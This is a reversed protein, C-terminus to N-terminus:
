KYFSALQKKYVDPLNIQAQLNKFYNKDDVVTLPDLAIPELEEVPFAKAVVMPMTPEGDVPIHPRIDGGEEEDHDLVLFWEPVASTLNSEPILVTENPEGINVLSKLSSALKRIQKLGKKLKKEAAALTIGSVVPDAEAQHLNFMKIKNGIKRKETEKLFFNKMMSSSGYRPHGNVVVLSISKESSHLLLDYPDDAVGEIVILDALKDQTLTGIENDWKIIKAANKTAMEVIEYSSFLNDNENSYIRAVKLEGLLNKSGSPSWDSGIGIMIKNSKAASVDATQGYLLLNSLPSWVISAKKEKMIKYDANTLAVSHIGALADTIAWDDNPLKLSEFHKHANEDSGESLHLLMCSSKKLQALFHEADKSAIDPIHADVKPLLPNKAEEVNRVIGRYYKRIGNNSFLMIGQSTTVGAALCKCEVYRVIMEVYGATKGLANMPTSILKQYEPIGSWQSRNGYLKPVNWLPLCNYSLHNHLEILGPFITGKTKHVPADVLEAPVSDGDRVIARVRGESLYITGRFFDNEKEMTVILGSLGFLPSDMLDTGNTKKAM